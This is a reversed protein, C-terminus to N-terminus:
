ITTGSGVSVLPAEHDGSRRLGAPFQEVGVFGDAPIMYGTALAVDSWSHGSGIMRVTLGKRRAEAVAEALDEPSRAEVIAVPDVAQNCSHNRWRRRRLLPLRVGLRAGGHPLRRISAKRQTDM